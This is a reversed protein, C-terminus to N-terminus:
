KVFAKKKWFVYSSGLLAIAISFDLIAVGILFFYNDHALRSLTAGALIMAALFAFFDPRFFQWIKPRDLSEIRNLNKQCVKSFLLIAKFGGIFLGAVAAIWFWYQESKLSNAEALLSGGKLLLVIGGVYWVFAALINLTRASVTLM